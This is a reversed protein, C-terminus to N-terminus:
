KYEPPRKDKKSYSYIQMKHAWWRETLCFSHLTGWLCKTFCGVQSYITLRIDLCNLFTTYPAIGFMDHPLATNQAPPTICIDLDNRLWMRRYAERLEARRVNLLALRDLRKISGLEPLTWNLVLGLKEAQRKIELIAPV